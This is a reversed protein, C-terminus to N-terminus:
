IHFWGRISYYISYYSINDDEQEIENEDNSDNQNHNDKDKNENDDEDDNDDNDEEESQTQIQFHDSEVENISELDSIYCTKREFVADSHPHVSSILEDDSSSCSAENAMISNLHNSHNPHDSHPNSDPNELNRAISSSSHFDDSIDEENDEVIPTTASGVKIDVDLDSVSTIPDTGCPSISGHPLVPLTTLVGNNNNYNEEDKEDNSSIDNKPSQIFPSLPVSSSHEMPIDISDYNDLEEEKLDLVVQNQFVLEQLEQDEVSANNSIFDEETVSITNISEIFDNSKSNDGDM